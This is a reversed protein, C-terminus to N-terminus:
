NYTYTTFENIVGKNNVYLLIVHLNKHTKLFEKTKELGMAMFATAYADVDACDLNAIVSASLLNSEKAYGTKPNITHVYKKGDEAIRFKRYNGSTAMSKNSINLKKFGNESDKKVPNVLKIVWPENNKKFGNARIEGGIEILYNDINKTNFFRAIVDIGFGKAISNFDLYISSDEKIVIRNEIKVKDLGVFQMQKKVEDDSLNKKGTKPGFGWANVLNGVTPDFFGDTEKFIRKSKNFVEIFIADVKVDTEGKNIKSIDSTPLYTSTSKNVLYFLSDISKQYNISSNLYVIKYTTGFVLGKLIFDQQKEEKTCSLLVTSVTLIVLLKKFKM